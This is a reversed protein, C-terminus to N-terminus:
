DVPCTTTLATWITLMGSIHIRQSFDDYQRSLNQRERVRIGVVVEEKRRRQETPVKPM